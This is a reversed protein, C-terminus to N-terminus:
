LAVWTPFTSQGTDSIQISELLGEFYFGQLWDRDSFMVDYQTLNKYARCVAMKQVHSICRCQATMKLFLAPVMELEIHQLGSTSNNHHELLYMLIHLLQLYENYGYVLPTQRYIQHCPSLVSGAFGFM